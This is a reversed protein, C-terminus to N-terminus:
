VMMSHLMSGGRMSTSLLNWSSRKRDAFLKRPRWQQRADGVRRDRGNGEGFRRLRRLRRLRRRDVPIRNGGIECRRPLM